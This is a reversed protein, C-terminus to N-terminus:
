HTNSNVSTSTNLAQSDDPLNTHITRLAPSPPNHRFIIQHPCYGTATHTATNLSMQILPVLSPWDTRHNTHMSARLANNLSRHSRECVGNGQPWYPSTHSISYGLLDGIVQWLHSTYEPGNDSHIFGPVGFITILHKVVLNYRPGPDATQLLM